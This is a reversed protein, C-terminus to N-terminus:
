ENIIACVPGIIVSAMTNRNYFRYSEFMSGIRRDNVEHLYYLHLNTTTKWKQWRNLQLHISNSLIPMRHNSSLPEFCNQRRWFIHRSIASHTMMRRNIRLTDFLHLISRRNWLPGNGEASRKRIGSFLCWRGRFLLHWWISNMTAVVTKVVATTVCNGYLPRMNHAQVITVTTKTCNRTRIKHTGMRERYCVVESSLLMLVLIWRM